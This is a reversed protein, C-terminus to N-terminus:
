AGPGNQMDQNGPRATEPETRLEWRRVVRRCTCFKGLHCAAITTAEFTLREVDPLTSAHGLTIHPKFAAFSSVRRFGAVWAVDGPRADGGLFAAETGDPRELGSLIEMLRRHLEMLAPTLDLSMWVSSQGRGAGTVTLSLAGFGALASGVRDFASDLDEERVFQQTLTVHPIADGGLRLGLSENEPLAASLEIARQSIAPSPLVAIDIAVLSSDSVPFRAGLTL